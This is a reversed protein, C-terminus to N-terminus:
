RDFGRRGRRHRDAFLDFVGGREGAQDGRDPGFPRDREPEVGVFFAFVFHVFRDRGTDVGVRAVARRGFVRGRRGAGVVPAGEVRAIGVVFRGRGRTLVCALARHDFLGFMPLFGRRARRHGHAGVDFVHGRDRAQDFRGAVARDGELQVGVAFAFDFDEARGRGADAGVAVDVGAFVRGFGGAGVVPDGAEGAVCVVFRDRAFAFVAALARHDFLGFRRDFGRGDGAHGHAGVDFVHGRDRAEDFRGAFARDGELQVRVAFAFGRRH